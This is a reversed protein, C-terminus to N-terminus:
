PKEATMPGNRHRNGGVETYNCKAIGDAGYKGSFEFSGNQGKGTGSIETKFDSKIAGAYDLPKGGWIAVYAADYTGDGKPTLTATWTSNKGGFTCTGKIAITNAPKNAAMLTPVSMLLLAGLGAILFTGRLLRWSVSQSSRHIQNM